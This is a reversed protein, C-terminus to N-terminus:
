AAELGDALTSEWIAREAEMEAWAAEDERLAAYADNLASLMQQRRYSELAQEVISQMSQGTAQAMDSLMNRTNTTVRITTTSM